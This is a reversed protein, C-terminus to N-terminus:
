NRPEKNIEQHLLTATTRNKTNAKDHKKHQNQQNKINYGFNYM